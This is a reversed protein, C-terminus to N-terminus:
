GLMRIYEFTLFMSNSCSGGNRELTYREAGIFSRFLYFFISSVKPIKIARFKYRQCKRHLIAPIHRLRDLDIAPQDLPYMGGHPITSGVSDLDPGNRQEQRVNRSEPSSQPTLVGHRQSRYMGELPLAECGLLELRIKTMVTAVEEAQM